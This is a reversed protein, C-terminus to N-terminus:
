VALLWGVLVASKIVILGTTVRSQRQFWAGLWEFPQFIGM